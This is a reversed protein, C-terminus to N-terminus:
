IELRHAGAFSGFLATRAVALVQVVLRMDIKMRAPGWPEIIIPPLACAAPGSLTETAFGAQGAKAATKPVVLIEVSRV